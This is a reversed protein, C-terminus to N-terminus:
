NGYSMILDDFDEVLDRTAPVGENELRANTATFFSRWYQLGQDVTGDSRGAGVALSGRDTAALPIGDTGASHIVLKGRSGTPLTQTPNALDDPYAPNGLMGTMSTSILAANNGPREGLLSLGQPSEGSRGWQESNLFGANSAWYFRSSGDESFQRAFDETQTIERPGFPDEVWLLLPNGWGDVLDPINASGAPGTLQNAIQSVQTGTAGMEQAVFYKESPKFYGLNGPVDQGILDPRVFRNAATNAARAANTPGFNGWGPQLGVASDPTVIGGALALIANEMATYGLNDNDQSGMESPSYIGPTRGDNDQRYADVANGFEKMVAQTAAQRALNRTDTLAPFILALVLVIITLVVLVETLTFGPRGSPQTQNRDANRNM